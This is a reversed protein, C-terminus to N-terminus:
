FFGIKETKIHSISFVNQVDDNPIFDFYIYLDRHPFCLLREKSRKDYKYCEDNLRIIGKKIDFQGNFFYHFNAFVFHLYVESMSVDSFSLRKIDSSKIRLKKKDISEITVEAPLQNENWM